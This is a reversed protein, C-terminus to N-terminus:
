LLLKCKQVGGHVNGALAISNITTQVTRTTKTGSSLFFATEELPGIRFDARERELPRAIAAIYFKSQLKAIIDSQMASTKEGKVAAKQFGISLQGQSRGLHVEQSIPLFLM